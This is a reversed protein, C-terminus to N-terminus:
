ARLEAGFRDALAAVIRDRVATAEADTLTRDPARLELAYALSRKGAAIQDGEYVDFLRVSALEPAGVEAILKEVGVAPVAADVVVAIDMFNGPFRSLEEVKPKGPLVNLLPALALEFMVVTRDIGWGEGVAPHIEGVAGATTGDLLVAAARTPHFPKGSVPAFEARPLSLAGFLAEIVGKAEFFGWSEDENSWGGRRREGSMAAGLITAERPLDEGIPEYVRAIEFLGVGAARQRENVAVARLLGPLLTTRLAPEEESMPNAVRVMAAAPDDPAVGLRELDEPSMFSSTWAEHLGLDALLRRISRDLVQDRELRGTRGPPLTAPLREFGALRGVEEILDVERTLDHRFTPIGVELVPDAHTVDLGIASLYTVQLDTAIPAGLLKGVRGPRLTITPREVPAPYEDTEDPAVHAEALQSILGAARAAAMPAMEADAGREFRASAETRLGHRRSTFAVSAPDFYASELIIAETETGVESDEGGMVGAIALARKKDAIVLDDPHLTRKQGDLTAIREDRRARRVVIHHDRVKAADFAHLPQGLEFLVYNTIDVVNSIPRVGVNLLRATMWAPASAIRVSEMYRAVYRPCGTPDDIYVEVPSRLGQTSELEPDPLKLENGLVASVERAVGLISMCDPRNPTIELELVTDDLELLSVVEAGLPADSPLVLIGSHDSSIGLEAASCLMGRSIEGRIKRETIEMEPLRAGVQALPVLDGVEFNKAGCVVRQTEGFDTRVDVLTLNDANPHESIELVEAVIVGGIAGTPRRVSEVKTGSLDLLEVLKEVPVDVAVFEDLWRLPVRM